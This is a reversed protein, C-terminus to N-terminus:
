ALLRGIERVLRHHHAHGTYRAEVHGTFRKGVLALDGILDLVKHRALENPFRLGEPNVVKGERLLVANELSGGRAKGRGQMEALRESFGYTRAPAIERRFVDPSLEARFSQEAVGLDPYSIRVELVLGGAGPRALIRSNGESVECSSPLARTVRRRDQPVTGARTLLDVFREASGDGAPVEPGDVWIELNDIGMGWVAALLHEVTGIERGERILTTASDDGGIHEARAPISFPPDSDSRFFTIGSGPSAPKVVLTVREGSHLGVGSFDAEARISQEHEM